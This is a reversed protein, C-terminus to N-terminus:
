RSLLDRMTYNGPTQKILWLSARIAGSAFVSRNLATHEILINEASSMAWIKHIGFNEGGRVSLPEPLKKQVIKHLEKQLTKATGSPKDKKHKHHFEEIQFDFDEIDSFQKMMETVLAIGLSFNSSWLVPIKKAASKLQREHEVSIGTTGSVFPVKNKVCWKLTSEFGQPSSFDIVVDAGKVLETLIMKKSAGSLLKEIEQGMKGGRGVLAIKIM